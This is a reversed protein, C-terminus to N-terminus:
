SRRGEQLRLTLAALTTRNKAGTKKFINHLHLKVTGETVNLHQAIEKNSYGAAILDAVQNERTSLGKLIVKLETLYDEDRALAAQMVEVPIWRSGEAVTRLCDLLADSANEKLLFGHARRTIATLVHQDNVTATLFIIKTSLGSKEVENLVDLGSLGPMKIDLIAVDPHHQRIASLAELGDVCSALVQFEPEASLLAELGKLVLPHDDAIVVKIVKHATM